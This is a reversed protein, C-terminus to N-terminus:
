LPQYRSLAAGLEDAFYGNDFMPMNKLDKIGDVYTGNTMPRPDQTEMSHFGKVLMNVISDGTSFDEKKEGAHHQDFTSEYSWQMSARQVKWNMSAQEEPSVSDLFRIGAVFGGTPDKTMKEAGMPGYLGMAQGQQRAMMSRAIDQEEANFQGGSNSAVAFLSRRDLQGFARDWDGQTAHVADFPHGEANMESYTKNLAARADSTVDAFSKTKLALDAAAAAAEPSIAVEDTIVRQGIPAATKATQSQSAGTKWSSDSLGTAKAQNGYSRVLLESITSM